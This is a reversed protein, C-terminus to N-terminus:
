DDLFRARRAVKGVLKPVRAEVARALAEERELEQQVLVADPGGLRDSGLVTLMLTRAVASDHWEGLADQLRQLHHALKTAPKGFFPVLVPTVYRARKTAKRLDHLVLDLDGGDELREAQERVQWLQHRVLRPLVDTAAADGDRVVLGSAFLRGLDGILATYRASSWAEEARTRAQETMALVFSDLPGRTKEVESEDGTAAGARRAAQVQADRAPGLEAGVWRLDRTLPDVSDDLLPRFTSLTSRLRRLAVRMGHVGSFDSLRLQQDAAQVAAVQEDLVLRLVQVTTPDTAPVRDAPRNGNV